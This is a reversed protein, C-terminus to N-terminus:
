AATCGAGYGALLWEPREGRQLARAHVAPGGGREWGASGGVQLEEHKLGWGGVHIDAAEPREELLAAQEPALDLLALM